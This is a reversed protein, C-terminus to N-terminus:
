KNCDWVNRSCEVYLYYKTREEGGGTEDRYRSIIQVISNVINSNM